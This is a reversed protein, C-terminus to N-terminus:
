DLVKIAILQSSTYQTYQQQTELFAAIFEEPYSIELLHALEPKELDWGLRSSLLIIDGAELAMGEDPQSPEIWEGDGIRFRFDPPADDEAGLARSLVNRISMRSIEERTFQKRDILENAYDHIFSLRRIQKERMLFVSCEGIYGLYLQNNRIIVEACSAGAELAADLIRRNAVEFAEIFIRYADFQSCTFVTEQISTIAIDSAKTAERPIGIGRAVGALLVPNGDYCLPSVVACAHQRSNRGRLEGHAVELRPFRDVSV